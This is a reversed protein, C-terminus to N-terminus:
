TSTAPLFADISLAILRRITSRDEAFNPSITAHINITIMGNKGLSHAFLEITKHM